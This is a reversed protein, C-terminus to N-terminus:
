TNPSTDALFLTYAMEGKGSNTVRAKQVCRQFPVLFLHQTVVFRLMAAIVLPYFHLFTEEAIADTDPVGCIATKPQRM